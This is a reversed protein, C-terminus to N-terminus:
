TGCRGQDKIPAVAGKERWDVSEPLKEGDEVAYRRSAVKAKVFRRKADTRAGLYMSRYEENTLDAFRNLGVKYTRNASNHDDIFRLNDKFIDFRRETEGIGNYAKGHKAMWDRYIGMVEEDRRGDSNEVPKNDNNIISLHKAHSLSAFLFLLFITPITIAIAMAM